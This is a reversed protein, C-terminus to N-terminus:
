DNDRYRTLPPLSHRSQDSKECICIYEGERGRDTTQNCCYYGTCALYFPASASAVLSSAKGQRASDRTIRTGKRNSSWEGGVSSTEGGIHVDLREDAAKRELRVEENHKWRKMGLNSGNRRKEEEFLEGVKREVTRTRTRTGRPRYAASRAYTPGRTYSCVHVRCCRVATGAAAATAAVATARRPHEHEQSLSVKSKGGIECRSCRSSRGLPFSLRATHTFSIVFRYRVHPVRFWPLYEGAEFTVCHYRSPKCHFRFSKSLSKRDFMSAYTRGSLM